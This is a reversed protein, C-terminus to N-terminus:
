LELEPLFKRDLQQFDKNHKITKVESIKNMKNTNESV